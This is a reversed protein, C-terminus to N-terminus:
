NHSRHDYYEYIGPGIQMRLVSAIRELHFVAAAKQFKNLRALSRNLRSEILQCALAAAKVFPKHTKLREWPPCADPAQWLIPIARPESQQQSSSATKNPKRRAQNSTKM